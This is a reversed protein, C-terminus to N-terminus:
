RPTFAIRDLENAVRLMAAGYDSNPESGLPGLIIVLDDAALAVDTLGAADAKSAVLVALFRTEDFDEALAAGNMAASDRVIEAVALLTEEDPRM